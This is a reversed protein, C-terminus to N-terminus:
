IIFTIRVITFKRPGPMARRRYRRAIPDVHAPMPWDLRRRHLLIGLSTLEAIILHLACSVGGIWNQDQRKELDHDQLPALAASVTFLNALLFSLTSVITPINM